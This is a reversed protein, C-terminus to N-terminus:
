LEYSSTDTYIQQEIVTVQTSTCTVPMSTSSMTNDVSNSVISSPHREVDKSAFDPLKISAATSSPPPLLLPFIANISKAASGSSSGAFGALLGTGLKIRDDPDDEELVLAATDFTLSEDGVDLRSEATQILIRGLQARNAADPVRGYWLRLSTLPKQDVFITGSADRLTVEKDGIVQSVGDSFTVKVASVVKVDDALKTSWAEVGYVYKYKNFRHYAVYNVSCVGFPTPKLLPCGGSFGNSAVCVTEKMNTWMNEEIRCPSEAPM